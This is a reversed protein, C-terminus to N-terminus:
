SYGRTNTFNSGLSFSIIPQTVMGQVCLEQFLSPSKSNFPGLGLIGQIGANLGEARTIAIFQFNQVCGLAVLKDRTLKTGRPYDM